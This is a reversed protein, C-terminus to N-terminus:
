EFAIVVSTLYPTAACNPTLLRARYQILNGNFGNLNSGSETFWSDKGDPGMWEMSNITKKDNAVRIQFHVDTGFPKEVEWHISRPLEDKKIVFVSSIYDEYFERNYSNGADRLNLGSPGAALVEWRNDKSYGNPSGWYLLSPTIHEHPKAELYSGAKRHNCIMLDLWGDNDYDLAESGSSGYTELETAIGQFGKEGGWYILSPRNGSVEGGYATLFLDLWGDKNLDAISNQYPVYSPVNIRNDNSFGNPSGYYIFSSTKTGDPSGRQPFVLDLWGDKNFDAGKIYMLHDKRGLDIDTFMEDTFGDSAGWWIRVKGDEVQGAIDLHNDKNLDMLLPARFRDADYHLISRNRFDYGTKSGWFIPFGHKEPDDLDTCYGGSLIDLYGDKNIDAIRVGGYGYKMTIFSPPSFDGYDGWHISLGGPEHTVGALYNKRAMVLDVNDDDDLDAHGFGFVQHTHFFMSRDVSFNRTGDGWYLFSKVPGDRFYGEDNFFVVDPFGDNNIDGITNDMTGLTPLQTHNEYMFSGKDNWYIYSLLNQQNTIQLFSFVIEPYGDGNLDGSSVGSAGFTPLALPESNLFNQGDSYYVYSDTWTAGGPTSFNAVVLDDLGDSNVDSFAVDRPRSIPLLTSETLDYNGQGLGPLILVGKGTCFAMDPNMDGNFDGIDAASAEIKMEQAKDPNTFAYKSSLFLHTYKTTMAVLDDIGDGDIDGVTFNAAGRGNFSFTLKNEANFGQPSNWYIFSRRDVKEKDEDEDWWQCGVALDLWSDNNFDGAVVASGEAAPLEFRKKVDFGNDEGYFIWVPVRRYHSDSYHVTVLDNLGDKNLDAVLGGRSGAAPLELRTRGEINIGNNFYIFTNEKETHSQSGPLFIDLHGDNNFDWRTIMQVRGKASVYSNSGADLFSGDRFEEFSDERWESQAQIIVGNSLLIIISIFFTIKEIISKM